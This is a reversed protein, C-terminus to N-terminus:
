LHKDRPFKNLAENMAQIAPIYRGQSANALWDIVLGEETNASARTALAKDREALQETPDQSFFMLIIHGLAFQPDAKVSNRFSELGDEIHLMEMKAMGKEFAVHAPQSKTSIHMGTPVDHAFAWTSFAFFASILIRLKNSGMSQEKVGAAPPA